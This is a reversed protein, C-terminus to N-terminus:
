LVLIFIFIWKGQNDMLDMKWTTPNGPVVIEPAEYEEEEHGATAM